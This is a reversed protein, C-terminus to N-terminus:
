VKTMLMELKQERSLKGQMKINFLIRDRGVKEEFEKRQDRNYSNVRDILMQRESANGRYDALKEELRLLSKKRKELFNIGLRLTEGKWTMKAYELDSANSSDSYISMLSRERVFQKGKVIFVM